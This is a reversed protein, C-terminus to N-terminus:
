VSLCIVHALLACSNICGKPHGLKASRLHLIFIFTILSQVMVTSSMIAASFIKPGSTADRLLFFTHCVGFDQLQQYYQSELSVWQLVLLLPVICQCKRCVITWSFNHTSLTKVIDLMTTDWLDTINLSMIIGFWFICLLCLGNIANVYSWDVHVSDKYNIM